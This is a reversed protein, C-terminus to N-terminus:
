RARKAVFEEGGFDAVKRAFKIEDGAVKGRYEIRLPMDEFKMNEVFFIEDGTVKGEQIEVKGQPGTATGTLKEGEAKLDYTYNQAGIPTDFQATWKGTVDAAQASLGLTLMLTFLLARITMIEEGREAKASKITCGPAVFAPSGM